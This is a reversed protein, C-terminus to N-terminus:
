SQMSPLAELLFNRAARSLNKNKHLILSFKRRFELNEFQLETLGGSDLDARVLQEPLVSIGLGAKVGSILARTSISEWLPRISIGAALMISDFLDRTGSGKERLLFSEQELRALPIKGANALPHSPSCVPVLRGQAFERVQIQDSQVASEILGFDVENELVRGLIVGSNEICVSVRIQPYKQSFRRIPEPLFCTGVTISSGIRIQGADGSGCIETEMEEFQAIIHLAYELLRKGESTLYLKRSIRDFLKVGYHEELERIALSVAPQTMYLRQAAATMSDQRCVEAFIKLHRLTM